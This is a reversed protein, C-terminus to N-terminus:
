FFFPGLISSIKESIAKKDGPFKLFGVHDKVSKECIKMPVKMLSKRKEGSGLHGDPLSTVLLTSGGTRLGSWEETSQAQWAPDWSVKVLELDCINEGINEEIFQM